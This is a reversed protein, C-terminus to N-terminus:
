TLRPPPTACPRTKGATGSCPDPHIRECRNRERVACEASCGPGPMEIPWTAM